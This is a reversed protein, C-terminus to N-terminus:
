VLYENVDTYNKYNTNFLVNKFKNYLNILTITLTIIKM